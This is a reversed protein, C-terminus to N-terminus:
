FTVHNVTSKRKIVQHVSGGLPADRSTKDFSLSRAEPFSWACFKINNRAVLGHLALLDPINWNEKSENSSIAFEPRQWQFVGVQLFARQATVDSSSM